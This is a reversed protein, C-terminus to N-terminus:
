KQSNGEFSLPLAHGLGATVPSAGPSEASDLAPFHCQSLPSTRGAGSCPGGGGLGGVVHPEKRIGLPFQRHSLRGLVGSWVNETESVRKDEQPERKTSDAWSLRAARPDGRHWGASALCGGSQQGPERWTGLPNGPASVRGVAWVRGPTPFVWGPHGAVRVQSILPQPGSSM